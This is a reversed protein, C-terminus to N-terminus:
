VNREKRQKEYLSLKKREERIEEKGEYMIKKREKRISKGERGRMLEKRGEKEGTVRISKKERGESKKGKRGERIKGLYLNLM